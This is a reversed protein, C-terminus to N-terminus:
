GAGAPHRSVMWPHCRHPIQVAGPNSVQVRPFQVPEPRVPGARQGHDAAGARVHRVAQRHGPHSGVVVLRDVDIVASSGRKGVDVPEAVDVEVGRIHRHEAPVRVRVDHGRDDRLRSPGGHEQQRGLGRHRHGFFEGAAVRDPLPLEGQGGGLGIGLRDPQGPSDGAPLDDDQELPM